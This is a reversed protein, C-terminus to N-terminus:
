KEGKRQEQRQVIESEESQKKGYRRSQIETPGTLWQGKTLSVVIGPSFSRGTLRNPENRNAPHGRRSSEVLVFMAKRNGTTASGSIGSPVASLALPRSGLHSLRGIGRLLALWMVAPRSSSSRPFQPEWCQLVSEGSTAQRDTM